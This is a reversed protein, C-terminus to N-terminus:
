RMVFCLEWSAQRYSLVGSILDTRTGPATTSSATNDAPQIKQKTEETKGLEDAKKREETRLPQFRTKIEEEKEQM